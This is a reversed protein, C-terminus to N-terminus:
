EVEEVSYVVKDPGWESRRAYSQADDLAWGPGIDSEIEIQQTTTSTVIYKM